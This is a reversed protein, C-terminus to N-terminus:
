FYENLEKNIRRIIFIIKNKEKLKKAKRSIQSGKLSSEYEKERNSKEKKRILLL